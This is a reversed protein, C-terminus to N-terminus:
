LREEMKSIIEYVAIAAANSVNLSNKVGHMKIELAKDCQALILEDIGLSENGLVLAVKKAPSYNNLPFSNTTLELAITEYGRTRFSTIAEATSNYASLKVFELTGMATEQVKRNEAQPTHGCLAVEAVGLCEATRIIAGVNFASRLNDLILVLPFNQKQKDNLSDYRRVIIDSDRLYGGTQEILLDRLYLVVKKDELCYDELDPIDLAGRNKPLYGSCEQLSDRLLRSYEAHEFSMELATLMELIIARQKEQSFSLFKKESYRYIKKM